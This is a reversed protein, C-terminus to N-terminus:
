SIRGAACRVYLTPWFFQGLNRSRAVAGAPPIVCGLVIKKPWSQKNEWEIMESQKKESEQLGEVLGHVHAVSRHHPLAAVAGDAGLDAGRM